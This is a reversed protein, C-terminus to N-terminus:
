IAAYLMKCCRGRYFRYALQLPFIEVYIGEKNIRTDLRFSLVLFSLLILLVAVIVFGADSMPNDGFQRGAFVQLVVGYIFIGNIALLFVWGVVAQIKSIRCVSNRQEYIMWEFSAIYKKWLKCIKKNLITFKILMKKLLCASVFRGQVIAGQMIDALDERSTFM